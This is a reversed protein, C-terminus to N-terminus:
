LDKLRGMTFTEGKVPLNAIKGLMPLDLSVYTTVIYYYGGTRLKIEQICYNSTNNLCGSSSGPSLSTTRKGGYYNIENLYTEIKPVAGEYGDNDELISVLQNKVRFTIAYNIGMAMLSMYIVVFLMMMQFLITGGIAGKM